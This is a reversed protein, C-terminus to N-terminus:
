LINVVDVVDSNNPTVDAVQVQSANFDTYEVSDDKKYKYLLYQFFIWNNYVYCCENCLWIEAPENIHPM